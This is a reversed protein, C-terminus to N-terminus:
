KDMKDSWIKYEKPFRREFEHELIVMVGITGDMFKELEKASAICALRCWFDTNSLVRQFVKPDPNPVM